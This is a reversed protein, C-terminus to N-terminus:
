PFQRVGLKKWDDAFRQMGQDTLQHTLAKELVEAPLTAADVGAMIAQELHVVHRLSAALIETRYGYSDVMTRLAYLLEAGNANIDDLRGVFPSIYKVGLKCMMVGQSLSFLLTVNISVGEGVLRKIVSYYNIHCPVKVVVNPAIAAIKKAQEYVAAPDEQTVEVSVDGQPLAGCIEKVLQLPDGGEKSLHTPNTTVGDIIGMEHWKKISALNATDLFIKM